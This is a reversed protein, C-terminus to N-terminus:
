DTGLLFLPKLECLKKYLFFTNIFESYSITDCM